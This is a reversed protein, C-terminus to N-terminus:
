FLSEYDWLKMISDNNCLGRIVMKMIANVVNIISM